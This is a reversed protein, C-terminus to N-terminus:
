FVNFAQDHARALASDAQGIVAMLQRCSSCLPYARLSDASQDLDRRLDNALARAASEGLLIEYVSRQVRNGLGLLIKEAHRRRREDAIDYCFVWVRSM